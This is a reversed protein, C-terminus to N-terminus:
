LCVVKTVASLTAIARDQEEGMLNQFSLRGRRALRSIMAIATSTGILILISHVVEARVINITSREFVPSPNVNIEKFFSTGRNLVRNCPGM